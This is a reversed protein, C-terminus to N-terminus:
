TLTRAPSTPQEMSSAAFETLMPSAGADMWMGTFVAVISEREHGQMISVTCAHRNLGPALTDGEILKRQACGCAAVADKEAAGLLRALCHLVKTSRTHGMRMDLGVDPLLSALELGCTAAAFGTAVLRLNKLCQQMKAGRYKSHETCMCALHHGNAHM